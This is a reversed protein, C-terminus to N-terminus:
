STLRKYFIMESIGDQAFNPCEGILDYGLRNYFLHAQQNFHSSLLFLHPTHIMISTEASQMLQTGIGQGHYDPHVGILRIYGGHHFTGRLYYWIFGTITDNDLSVYIQAEQTNLGERFLTEATALTVSYRQWLYNESMIHACAEVHKDQLPVIM